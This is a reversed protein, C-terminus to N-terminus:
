QNLCDIDVVYDEYKYFYFNVIATRFHEKRRKPSTRLGMKENQHIIYKPSKAYGLLTSPRKERKRYTSVVKYVGGQLLYLIDWIIYICVSDNLNHPNYWSTVFLPNYKGMNRLKTLKVTLVMAIADINNSYDWLMHACWYTGYWLICFCVGVTKMYRLMYQVYVRIRIM